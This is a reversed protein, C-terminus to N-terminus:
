RLEQSAAPDLISEARHAEQREQRPRPRGGRESAIDPDGFLEADLGADPPLGTPWGPTTKEAPGRGDRILGELRAGQGEARDVLFELEDRLKTLSELQETIEWDSRGAVEKLATVGSEARTTAQYFDNILREMQESGGRLQRLRRNLVIAYAITAVLLGAVLLDLAVSISM